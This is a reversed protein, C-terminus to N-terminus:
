YFCPHNAYNSSLAILAGQMFIIGLNQLPDRLSVLFAPQRRCPRTKMEISFLVVNQHRTFALGAAASAIGEGEEAGKLKEKFAGM